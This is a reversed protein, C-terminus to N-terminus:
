PPTGGPMEARFEADPTNADGMKITVNMRKFSRLTAAVDRSTLELQQEWAVIWLARGHELQARTTRNQVRIDSARKNVLLTGNAKWLEREVVMAVLAALNMAVDGRTGQADAPGESVRAYCRAFFRASTALPTYLSGLGNFSTCTLVVAPDGLTEFEAVDESQDDSVTVDVLPEDISPAGPSTPTLALELTDRITDLLQSPLTM